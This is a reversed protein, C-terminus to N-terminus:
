SVILKISGFHTSAPNRVNITTAYDGSEFLHPLYTM